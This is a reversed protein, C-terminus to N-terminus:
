KVEKQSSRYILTSSNEIRLVQKAMAMVQEKTVSRLRELEGNALDPDGELAAFALNMVRNLLESESFLLTSEAQNKVKDLEEDTIGQSLLDQIVEDVRREGEEVSIGESLKGDIVILGPDFSSTVYSHLTHFIKDTNVLQDYLRSSKGRGLIDSLLDTAFFDKEWRGCMHYARYFADMPVDGTTEDRRAQQQAPEKPLNRLLKKGAPIPGFWKESLEKAKDLTIDGGLVLVANNPLYHSYFFEKVQDMVVAEIHVLEKGITPWAYPHKTYVMPRLKLWADGYPQNLYRQKFEEIVVNKQVDLVKQDFSLALMRDSELWFATEINAAPVLTYYNTVDPSTFANNEGGVRQLPEDFSPINASGGFMLHEFLHAFGTKEPHEDRSGVDYIINLVVTPRSHDEHVIVRLGNSLEFTNFDIM